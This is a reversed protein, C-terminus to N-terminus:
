SLRTPHKAEKFLARAAAQEEMGTARVGRAADPNFLVYLTQLLIKLDLFLSYNRIYYLDYRLKDAADMAYRGMVQAMGTLGPKVLLRYPYEAIEDSFQTVFHPREPRPGVLSMEGKLVNFVQPLEDLRTIRLWRGVTTVRPDDVTALVPGTEAEADPIMTRFKYLVFLRGGLGVREQRYFIPGKSTLRILVTAALMLPLTLVTAIVAVTLDLARKSVQQFSSLGLAPVEVVPLDDVQGVRANFLLIEYLGPVIFIERRYDLALAAIRAKVESPVTPALLIADVESMEAEVTKSDQYPVVGHLRFWGRPVNLFRRILSLEEDGLVCALVEDPAGSPEDGHPLTPSGAVILVSREGHLRREVSWFAARWANLLVLQFIAGLLLVSRPFAFGRFWFTIAMSSISLLLTGLALRKASDSFDAPIAAYLHLGAFTVLGIVTIWPALDLFPSFNEKPLEVGFRTYFALLLSLNILTADGTVLLWRPLRGSKVLRGRNLIMVQM